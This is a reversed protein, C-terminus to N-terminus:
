AGGVPTRAGRTAEGADGVCLNVHYGRTSREGFAEGDCNTNTTPRTLIMGCPGWGALVDEHERHGPRVDVGGGEGRRGRAERAARAARILLTEDDDQLPLLQNTRSDDRPTSTIGSWRPSSRSPRSTSCESTPPHPRPSPTSSAPLLLGTLLYPALVNIQFTSEFGDPHRRAEAHLRRRQQRPPPTEPARRPHRPWGAFTTSPPSTASTPARSAEAPPPSPTSASARPPSARPDRGHVIVGHGAAALRCAPHLGIGDTSGTVLAVRREDDPRTTISARPALTSARPPSARRVPSGARLERALRAVASSASLVPM